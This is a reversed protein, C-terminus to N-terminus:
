LHLVKHLSWWDRADVADRIGSTICGVGAVGGAKLYGHRVM